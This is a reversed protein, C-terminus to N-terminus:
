LFFGLLMSASVDEQLQVKEAAQEAEVLNNIPEVEYTIIGQDPPSVVAIDLGSLPVVLGRYEWTTGPNWTVFRNPDYAQLLFLYGGLQIRGAAESGVPKIEYVEQTAADVLDPRVLGSLHPLEYGVITNITRNSFRTEPSEAVFSFGLVAHVIIGYTIAKWVSIPMPRHGNPDINGIPDHAAYQYLHLSFPELPMGEFSDGNTFRGAAGNLYRARLYTLGLASDLREGVYRYENTTTAASRITVGFADYDYRDTVAGTSDTLFRVSGQGDHGYFHAVGGQKQSILDQGYTYVTQATGSVVDELVQSYGTPNLNDVLYQTTGDNATRSVRNGDGDYAITLAM